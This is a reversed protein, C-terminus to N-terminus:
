GRTAYLHGQGRLTRIADEPLGAAALKRRLRGIRSDISRDLPDDRAPAPRLLDDRGLPQDPHSAFAAVLDVETPSLDLVRGAGDTVQWQRRDLAFPGFGAHGRERRRRLVAEVRALLDAPSFPKAVYDDAGDELGEIRQEAACAGTLMIIGM